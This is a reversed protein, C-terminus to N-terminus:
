KEKAVWAIAIGGQADRDRDSAEAVIELAIRASLSWM